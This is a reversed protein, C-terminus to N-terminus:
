DLTRPYSPAHARSIRLRLFYDRVVSGGCGRVVSLIIMLFRVMIVLFSVAFNMTCSIADIADAMRVARPAVDHM